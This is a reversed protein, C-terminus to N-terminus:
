PAPTYTNTPIMSLLEVDDVEIASSVAEWISPDEDELIAYVRKSLGSGVARLLPIVAQFVADMAEIRRAHHEIEELDTGAMTVIIGSGPERLRIEGPKSFSTDRIM